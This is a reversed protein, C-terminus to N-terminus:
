AVDDGVGLVAAPGRAVVGEQEVRHDDEAVLRLPKLVSVSEPFGDLDFVVEELRRVEGRFVIREERNTEEASDVRPPDRQRQHRPGLSLPQRPESRQERGHICNIRSLIRM